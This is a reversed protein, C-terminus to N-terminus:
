DAHNDLVDVWERVSHFGDPNRYARALLSIEKWPVREILKIDKGSHSANWDTVHQIEGVLGVSNEHLPMELIRIKESADIMAHNYKSWFTYDTPLEYLIALRHCHVIPSHIHEGAKLYHYTMFEALRFRATMVVPKPSTYPQALYIM